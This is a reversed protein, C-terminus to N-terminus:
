SSSKSSPIFTKKRRKNKLDKNGRKLKMKQGLNKKKKEKKKECPDHKILRELKSLDSGSLISPRGSRKHDTLMNEENFRKWVRCITSLPLNLRRSAERYCHVEEMVLQIRINRELKMM